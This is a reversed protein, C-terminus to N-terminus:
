FSGIQKELEMVEDVYSQLNEVKRKLDAVNLSQGGRTEILKQEDEIADSAMCLGVMARNLPQPPEDSRIEVTINLPLLNPGKITEKITLTYKPNENNM